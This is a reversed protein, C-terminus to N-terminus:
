EVVSGNRPERLPPAAQFLQVLNLPSPRPRTQAKLAAPRGRGAEAGHLRVSNGAARVLRRFASVLPSVDALHCLDCAGEKCDPPEFACHLQTYPLQWLGLALLLLLLQRTM